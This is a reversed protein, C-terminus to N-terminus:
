RDAYYDPRRFEVDCQWRDGGGSQRADVHGGGLSMLGGSTLDINGGNGSAPTTVIERVTMTGSANLTVVGGLSKVGGINIDGGTAAFSIAGGGTLFRDNVDATATIHRGATLTLTSGSGVSAMSLEGDTLNNLVIDRSASLTVNGSLGELAQESITVDTTSNADASDLINGGLMADDAGSGGDAIFIDQPDLLITGAKGKAASTDIAANFALHRKGSTEVFGGNGSQAGGRASISGYARTTDDAWVIVKGGDGNQVADAKISAELGVYTVQANRVGPNKGQYDGGILVTGGGQQGSAGVEADGTLGVREGLVQIEGGKGAGTASTVSGAELLTDKSAKFIIKGNEGVVASDASVKGRQNILAGYIGVKGGQGVIQGLNLAQNEPASVVVAMDPNATDVLQVSKGAALLIEGKPSTIIGSNQVDTAILVVQGGGPTTIAGQNDLKGAVKGANFQYKGALFDQNDIDLTSAILGNVDVRANPGFLIGNPNILYVKGNSQLAGLIASSEQGVVRNLVSSSGSQQIFRTVENPSISFGQWNIIANPSNTINLINGQTAFNVSGNIVQPGVPQALAVGFCGALAMGLLTRRFVVVKGAKIMKRNM